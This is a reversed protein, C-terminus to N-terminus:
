VLLRNMTEVEKKSVPMFLTDLITPHRVRVTYEHQLKGRGVRGMAQVMKEQTLETLDKGIYAHCFQYNTGYIYDTDALILYLQQNTALLKMVEIYKASDHAAFVGIGMMLLLKWTDEVDTALIKELTDQELVSTFADKSTHGFRALHEARNPIHMAPLSLPKVCSQLRLLEAQMKRVPASVRDDAMKKEKDSDKNADEVDKELQAIKLSLARNYAMAQKLSELLSPPLAADALCYAAVMAVKSTLYLTPGSTLTHADAMTVHISSTYLKTRSEQIPWADPSMDKLVQIYRMKINTITVDDFTTFHPGDGLFAVVASLDLYRLLTRHKDLHAACAQLDEWTACRHHPLEVENKDNLLRISKKCDYTLISHVTGGFKDNFALLVPEIEEPRPLTASSLVVTGIENDRWTRRIIDHLPHDDCDMGITPEDWYMVLTEPKNFALMYRMASIYSQVDCIMIEVKEGQSNDVQRIGGSKRDRTCSTVAFYHLKVDSPTECGFAFAIKKHASVCAKAFALGVHRAACIFIVKRGEALAIPSLTKGTGTPAIYLILRPETSKTWEVLQKQHEYLKLNQYKYTYPNRELIEPARTVLAALNPTHATLLAKVVQKLFPNPHVVALGDLYKLTYYYKDVDSPLKRCVDAVLIEYVEKGMSKSNALRISDAAKLKVSAAAPVDGPLRVFQHFLHVDLAPTPAIKLYGYLTPLSNVVLTPEHYAQQMFKLVELETAPLPVEISVWEDKTLKTQRLDMKQTSYKRSDLNESIL